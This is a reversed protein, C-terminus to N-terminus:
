FVHTAANRKGLSVTFISRTLARAMLYASENQTKNAEDFSAAMAFQFHSVHLEPKLRGWRFQLMPDVPHADVKELRRGLLKSQICRTWKGFKSCIACSKHLLLPMSVYCVTKEAGLYANTRPDIREMVDHSWTHSFAPDGSALHRPKPKKGMPFNWGKQKYFINEWSWLRALLEPLLFEGFGDLLM